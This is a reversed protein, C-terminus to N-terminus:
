LKYKRHNPAHISELKTFSSRIIPIGVLPETDEPTPEMISMTQDKAVTPPPHVSIFVIKGILVTLVIWLSLNFITLPHSLSSLFNHFSFLIKANWNM